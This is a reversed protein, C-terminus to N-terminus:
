NLFSLFTSILWKIRNQYTLLESSLTITSEKEKIKKNPCVLLCEKICMPVFQLLFFITHCVLQYILHYFINTISFSDVSNTQTLLFFFLWENKKTRKSSSPILIVIFFFFRSSLSLVFAVCVNIANPWDNCRRSLSRLAFM